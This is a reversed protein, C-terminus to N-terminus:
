RIAYLANKEDCSFGVSWTHSISAGPVSFSGLIGSIFRADLRAGCYAVLIDVPGVNQDEPAYFVATMDASDKIKGLLLADFGNKISIINDENWMVGADIEDVANARDPRCFLTDLTAKCVHASSKDATILSRRRCAFQSKRHM